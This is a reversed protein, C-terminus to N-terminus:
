VNKPCEYPNLLAGETFEMVKPAWDGDRYNFGVTAGLSIAKAIKEESGATVIVKSGVLKCM